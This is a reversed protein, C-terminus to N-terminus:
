RGRSNWTPLNLYVRSDPIELVLSANLKNWNVSLVLIDIVQFLFKCCNMAKVDPSRLETFVLLLILSPSDSFTPSTDIDSIQFNHSFSLIDVHPTRYPAKLQFHIHLSSILDQSSALSEQFCMVAYKQSRIYRIYDKQTQPFQVQNFQQYEVLYLPM